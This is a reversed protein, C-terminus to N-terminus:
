GGIAMKLTDESNPVNKISYSIQIMLINSGLNSDPTVQFIVNRLVVEPFYTNIIRNTENNIRKQISSNYNEFLLNRLTSGIGTVVRENQSSSFAFLIDQKIREKQTKTMKFYDGGRDFPIFFSLDGM